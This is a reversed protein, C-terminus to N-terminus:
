DSSRIDEVEGRREASQLQGGVEEAPRVSDGGPPLCPRDVLPKGGSSNPQGGSHDLAPLGSNEGGQDLSGCLHVSGPLQHNESAAPLADAPQSINTNGNADARIALRQNTFNITLDYTPANGGLDPDPGFKDRYVKELLFKTAGPDTKSHKDMQRVLELQRKALAKELHKRLRPTTKLMTQFAGIDMDFVIAAQRLEGSTAYASCAAKMKLLLPEDPSAKERVVRGKAFAVPKGNKKPPPTLKDM